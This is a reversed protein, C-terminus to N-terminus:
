VEAVEVMVGPQDSYFKRSHIEVIQKDDEWVIKNLCDLIMKELNDLDPKKAPSIDGRIMAKRNSKSVKIPLPMGFDMKVILAGQLAEVNDQRFTFHAIGSIARAQDKQDSYTCIKGGRIASRHRRKAIPTGPIWITIPNQNKRM